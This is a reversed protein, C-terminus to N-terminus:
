LRAPGRRRFFHVLRQLYDDEVSLCLYDARAQRCMEQLRERLDRQYHFLKDRTRASNADLLYYEGTEPDCVEHVGSLGRGTEADDFCHILVVEHKRSVSILERSFDPALFDSVVIALSRGKLVNQLFTLGARIDSRKGEPECTLLKTLGALVQGRSKGPALYGEAKDSFLVTGYNDGSKLAALGILTMLEGYMDIKRQGTSGFVSSGSVDALLMVNLEREEDYIKVTARGTRATVAWSMHRIDDGPEYHRFEKFQMGSGRFASRYNGALLATLNRRARIELQAVAALIKPPIPQM